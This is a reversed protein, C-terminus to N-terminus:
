GEKKSYDHFEVVHKEAVGGSHHQNVTSSDVEGCQKMRWIAAAPPAEGTMAKGDVRAIIVDLIFEHIAKLYPFNEVKYYYTSKPIEFKVRIAQVSTIGNEDATAYEAMERFKVEWEEDTLGKSLDNGEKFLWFKEM